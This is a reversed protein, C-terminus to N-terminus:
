VFYIEAPKEVTIEPDNVLSCIGVLCIVGDIKHPSKVISDPKILAVAEGHQKLSANGMNWSLMPLGQHKIRGSYIMRETSLIAPTMLYGQKIGYIGIDPYTDELDQVWEKLGMPDVAIGALKGTNYLDIALVKMMHMDFSEEKSVILEGSDIFKDYEVTNRRDEYGDNHLYQYCVILIVDNEMLGAVMFASPDDRGGLDVGAYIEVAERKIKALTITKDICKGWVSLKMFRDIGIVDTLIINLHQTFFNQLTSPDVDLKATNYKEILWKKPVTYDLSPCCRWWQSDDDPDFGEPLEFMIPFLRDHPSEGALIRKARAYMSSFVGSSKKLPATTLYLTFPDSKVSQGSVAQEILQKAKQMLGITHLEDVILGDVIQGVLNGAEMAVAQIRTGTSRQIVDKKYDRIHFLKELTKDARITAAMSDFVIESQKLTSALIIVNGRKITRSLVFAVALPGSYSSKGMKKSCYLLAEDHDRVGEENCHGFFSTIFKKQWPPAIGEDGFRKGDKDGQTIKLMSFIDWFKAGYGHIDECDPIYQTPDTRELEAVPLPFKSIFQNSM